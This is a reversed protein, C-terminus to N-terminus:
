SHELVARVRREVLLGGGVIWCQNVEEGAVAAASIAVGVRRGPLARPYSRLARAEWFPAHGVGDLIHVRGEWLNAYAVTELYTNNVYPEDGGSVNALPLKATEVVARQNDGVGAVFSEFMIRRARGDCRQVAALLFPEFSANRGCTDHAFSDGEEESFVEQGALHMHPNPLFGDGVQDGGVPPTGTIMLGKLGAYRGIVEIGIHGGLSWGVVAATEVGCGALVQVAADAYGPMTYGREPDRADESAGHGPLDMAIMRYRRGLDGDLQNRFVEKCSSNGHILLVM